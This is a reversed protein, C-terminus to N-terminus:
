AAVGAENASKLLPSMNACNIYTIDDPINFLSKQNPIIM